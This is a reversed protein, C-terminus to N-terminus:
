IQLEVNYSLDQNNISLALEETIRRSNAYEMKAIDKIIPMALGGYRTPLSILKREVDNVFRGGSIAPKFKNALTDEIPQFYEHIDPIRRLFYTFKSKFGGIVAAWAAQPEMEAIKFLSILQDNCNNVMSKIYERKFKKSGVAAGLHRQSSKAIKVESGKFIFKSRGSHEEKMILHSKSPKPYYGYKPGVRLLLEWCQKIKEIKGAVALDDAFAVEKSRYESILIFEHLFHLLLTVGLARTGMSTPDSQTTGEKTLIEKRGIVFLRAASQYCNSVYTSIAPCVVSVNHIMVNRNISNFANEADVVLVAESHEDNYIDHMARITAEAGAELGACVQLSGAAHM